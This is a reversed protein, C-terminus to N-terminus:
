IRPFVAKPACVQGLIKRFRNVSMAELQLSFSPRICTYTLIEEHATLTMLQTSVVNTEGQSFKSAVERELSFDCFDESNYVEIKGEDAIRGRLVVNGDRLFPEHVDAHAMSERIESLQKGISLESDKSRLCDVHAIGSLAALSHSSPLSPFYYRAVGELIPHGCVTCFINKAM